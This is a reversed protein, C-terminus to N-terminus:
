SQPPHLLCFLYSNYKSLFYHFNLAGKYVFDIICKKFIIEFEPTISETIGKISSLHKREQNEVAKM